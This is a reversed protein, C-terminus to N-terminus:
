TGNEARRNTTAPEARMLANLAYVISQPPQDRLGFETAIAVATSIASQAESGSGNALEVLALSSWAMSRAPAVRDGAERVAAELSARALEPAGMLYHASGELFRVLPRFPSGVHDLDYALAADAAMRDLGDRGRAASFVAIAWTTSRGDSLRIDVPHRRVVSVWHDFLDSERSTLSRFAAAM